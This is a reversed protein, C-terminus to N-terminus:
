CVSILHWYMKESSGQIPITLRIALITGNSGITIKAMTINRKEMIAKKTADVSRGLTEDEVPTLDDIATKMRASTHLM